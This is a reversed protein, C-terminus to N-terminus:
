VSVGNIHVSEIAGKTDANVPNSQVEYILHHCHLMNHLSYPYM